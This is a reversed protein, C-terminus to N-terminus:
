PLEAPNHGDSSRVDAAHLVEWLTGATYFTAATLAEPPFTCGFEAELDLMLGLLALSDLGHAGLITDAQITEDSSLGPLYGRLVVDFENPWDAM